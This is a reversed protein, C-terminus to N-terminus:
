VSLEKLDVLTNVHIQKQTRSLGIDDTSNISFLLVCLTQFLLYNVSSVTLSMELISASLLKINKCKLM